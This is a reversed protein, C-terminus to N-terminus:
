ASMNDGRPVGIEQYEALARRQVVVKPGDVSGKNDEGVQVGGRGAYMMDESDSGRGVGTMSVNASKSRGSLLLRPRSRSSPRSANPSGIDRVEVNVFLEALM